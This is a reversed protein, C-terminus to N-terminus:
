LQECSSSTNKTCHFISSYFHFFFMLSLDEGLTINEEFKLKEESSQKRKWIVKM